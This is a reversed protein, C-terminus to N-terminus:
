IGSLFFLGQTAKIGNDTLLNSCTRMSTGSSMLDDVLLVRKGILCEPVHSLAFPQFYGRIKTDIEKMSVFHNPGMKEWTAMQKNYSRKTNRNKIVSKSQKARQLADGITSKVLFPEDFIEIGLATSVTQSFEACFSKSSPVAVIVDADIYDISRCLETARDIFQAKETDSISYSRMGKLAYILPNGDRDLDGTRNRRFIHTVDIGGIKERRPNTELSTDVRLQHSDDFSVAKDPAINLGV